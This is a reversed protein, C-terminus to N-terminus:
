RRSLKMATMMVTGVAADFEADGQVLVVDGEAIPFLKDARIPIVKGDDGVFRVLVKPANQLTRKCFPCNDAHDPDDEGHGEKPLQSLIFTAEGDSFADFDGADVRGEILAPGEPLDADPPLDAIEKIDTPNQVPGEIPSASWFRDRLELLEPSMGPEKSCGAFALLVITVALFSMQM